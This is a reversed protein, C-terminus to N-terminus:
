AFHVEAPTLYGLSQHLRVNNYFHFYWKLTAMLDPVSVFDHLYILEYKLSRWLREVFINDLARGRGDMSIQIHAQKLIDTFAIATFQVGQDTNFITPQAQALARTLALRCFHGDLSNSLEWSIVYRSYWDIIATLYMFGQNMRIYTIDTSWVQGVHDIVLNRLLYPYIKHTEGSKKPKPKPYIAQLGMKHMLRQVRKRNIRYGDRRLQATIRRYGYFPTQTYQEDIKAMLELNLASEGAPQYYYSARNLGVLECQRRISIQPHDAQIMKRKKDISYHLSKKKLWELEMKLRGIQEYLKAEQENAQVPQSRGNKFIDEGQELIQKKWKSVLSPNVQYESAIQSLTKQGKIAELGVRLKFKASRKQQKKGM